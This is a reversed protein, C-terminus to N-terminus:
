IQEIFSGISREVEQLKQEDTNRMDITILAEKAIVNILGPNLKTVGVTGIQDGGMEKALRRVEM